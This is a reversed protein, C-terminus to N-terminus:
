ADEPRPEDARADEGVDESGVVTGDREFEGSGSEEFAGLVAFEPGFQGLWELDLYRVFVPLPLTLVTGVYPVVLLLLGVCCTMLGATLIVVAALVTIGLNLLGYLVCHGPHARFVEGFASWAALCGIRRRYMIPVVLHLLFFDVAVLAVVVVFGLTGLFVFYLITLASPAGIGHLAAAGGIVCAILIAVVALVVLGYVVQWLFLSDGQARYERWPGAVQARRHVLNDLFLFQGRSGVWALALALAIAAFLLVFVLLATWPEALLGGTADIVERPWHRIGADDLGELEERFQFWSHQGGEEVFSALWATFGLVLWLGVDFPRLLLRTMRSWAAHIPQSYSIPM